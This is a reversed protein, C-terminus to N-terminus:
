ARDCNKYKWEDTQLIKIRNGWFSQIGLKDVETKLIDRRANFLDDDLNLNELKFKLDVNGDGRDSFDFSFDFKLSAETVDKVMTFVPVKFILFEPPTFDDSGASDRSVSFNHNGKPTKTRKIKTVKSVSFDMVNDLLELGVTSLNDKLGRLLTELEERSMWRGNKQILRELRPATKLYCSAFPAVNRPDISFQSEYAHLGDENYEVVPQDKDIPDVTAQKTSLYKCFDGLDTTEFKQESCDNLEVFARGVLLKNVERDALCVHSLDQGEPM